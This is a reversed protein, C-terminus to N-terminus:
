LGQSALDLVKMVKLSHDLAEQAREFDREDIIAQFVRFEAAMRHESGNKNIVRPEIGNETVQVQPLTNSEGAVILSGRNGQITTRVEASCDKAAICVVKFDLYDMLLIGSTDVGREMNPLYNVTKPLGFLAVVLHINYINLDRLAGGGKEPDFAPAIVGEKFADYRSSYQSYNCDVIKIDGLNALEEKLVAFNELYLNTIAELLILQKRKAIEALEQAQAEKLTFPKECIVHKGALLAAKTMEYHLHNPTAVYVTDTNPNTLAEELDTYLDQIRYHDALAKAKEQSRPTSVLAQVQIGNTATIIPLAEEVIKGTGVVTLKM